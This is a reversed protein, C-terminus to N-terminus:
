RQVLPLFLLPGPNTITYVSGAMSNPIAEGDRNSLQASLVVIETLGPKLGVAQFSFLKGSGSVEPRPNIQSVAYDVIGSANNVKNEVLFWPPELLGSSPSVQAGPTHEDSDLVQIASPDFGLQIDAGYLRAVDQVWVEVVVITHQPINGTAPLVSVQTQLPAAVAFPEVLDPNALLCAALLLLLLRWKVM